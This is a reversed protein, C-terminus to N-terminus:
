RAPQDQYRGEPSPPLTLGGEGKAADEESRRLLEKDAKRSIAGLVVTLMMVVFFVAFGLLVMVSVDM